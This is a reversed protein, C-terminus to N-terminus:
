FLRSVLFIDDKAQPTNLDWLQPTTRPAGKAQLFGLVEHPKSSAPTLHAISVWCPVLVWVLEQICWGPSYGELPSPRGASKSSFVRFPSRNNEVVGRGLFDTYQFKGPPGTTLFGSQLAISAAWKGHGRSGRRPLRTEPGATPLQAPNCSRTRTVADGAKCDSHVDWERSVGDRPPSSPDWTSSCSLRCVMVVSSWECPLSSRWHRYQAGVCVLLYLGM